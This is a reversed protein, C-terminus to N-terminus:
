DSRGRYEGPSCRCSRPSCRINMITVSLCYGYHRCEGRHHLLVHADFFVMRFGQQKEPDPIKVLGKKVVGDGGAPLQLQRQRPLVATQGLARGHGANGIVRHVDIHVPQNFLAVLDRDALLQLVRLRGLAQHVPVDDADDGRARHRVGGVDAFLLVIKKQGDAQIPFLRAEAPAVDGGSFHEGPHDLAAFLFQGARQGADRGAFDNGVIRRGKFFGDPGKTRGARSRKEARLLGLLLQQGVEADAGQRGQPQIVAM